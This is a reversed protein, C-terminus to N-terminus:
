TVLKQYNIKPISLPKSLFHIELLLIGIGIAQLIEVFNLCYWEQNDRSHVCVISNQKPHKSSSYLVMVQIHLLHSNNFKEKVCIRYSFKDKYELLSFEPKVPHITFEVFV